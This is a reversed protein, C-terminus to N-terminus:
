NGISDGSGNEVTLLINNTYWLSDYDTDANGDADLAATTLHICRIIQYLLEVYEKQPVSALHFRFETGNGKTLSLSNEVLCLIIATYNTAEYASSACNDSDLQETLTELMAMIMYLIDVRERNGIGRPTIFVPEPITASPTLFNSIVNGQGDEISGNFIATYCNAEYTTLVISAGTDDDLKQCIGQISSVIDYLLDVEDRQRLGSPKIDACAKAM